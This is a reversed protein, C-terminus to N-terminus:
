PQRRQMHRPISALRNWSMLVEDDDDSEESSLRCRTCELRLYIRRGTKRCLTEPQRYCFPCDLIRSMEVKCAPM